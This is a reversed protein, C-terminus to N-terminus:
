RKEAQYWRRPAQLLLVTTPTKRSDLDGHGLPAVNPVYDPYIRWYQKPSEAQLEWSGDSCIVPSRVLNPVGMGLCKEDSDMGGSIDDEDNYFVCIRPWVDNPQKLIIEVTDSYGNNLAYYLPNWGLMNRKNWDVIGTEALIKM